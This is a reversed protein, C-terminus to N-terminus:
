LNRRRMWIIFGAVIIILPLGVVTSYFIAQVMNGTLNVFPPEESKAPISLLNPSQLLWTVSGAAFDLNGALGLTQQGLFAVDGVVVAIPEGTESDPATITNPVLPVDQKKGAAAKSVAYALHLPGHIDNNGKSVRNKTFDTEGFAENSTILLSRVQLNGPLKAVPELSRSYPFIVTLKKDLLSQTVDHNEVLPVPTLPDSYFSRQPDAVIDDHVKLGISNLLKKWEIMSVHSDTPGLFILLKGGKKIYNELLERERLVLDRQPGAVVILDADSPIKGEVSLELQDTIYGEGKLYSNFTDLDSIISAEGHGKLFYIHAQNQRNLDLIAKTVAQEGNFDMSYPNKGPSYLNYQSIVRRHNVDEVIITNYEQINYKKAISPEKEPDYFYVRIKSSAFGYEKLLNKIDSGTNSGEAIFATIKVPTKLESLVERTKQSLTFRKSHTLDWRKHYKIALFNVGVLSVLLLLVIFASSFKSIKMNNMKYM